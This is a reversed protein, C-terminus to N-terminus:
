WTVLSNTLPLYSNTEPLLVNFVLYWPELLASNGLHIGLFCNKIVSRWFRIFIRWIYLEYNNRWIHVLRRERLSPNSTFGKHIFDGEKEFWPLQNTKIIRNKPIKQLRWVQRLFTSANLKERYIEGPLLFFIM